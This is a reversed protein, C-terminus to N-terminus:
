TLNHLQSLVAKMYNPDKEDHKKPGKDPPQAGGDPHSASTKALTDKVGKEYGRKEAAEAVKPLNSGQAALHFVENWPMEKSLAKTQILTRDDGLDKYDPYKAVMQNEFATELAPALEKRVEAKAQRAAESALHKFGAEREKPDESALLKEVSVAPAAEGVSIKLKAGEAIEAILGEPDNQRRQEYQKLAAVADGQKGIKSTLDTLKTETETLKAQKQDDIESMQKILNLADDLNDPMTVQGDGGGEGQNGGQGNQNAGDQNAGDQNQSGAGNAGASDTGAGVAAAAGGDGTQGNAETM